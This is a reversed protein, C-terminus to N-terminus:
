TEKLFIGTNLSKLRRKDLFLDFEASSTLYFHVNENLLSATQQMLEINLPNLVAICYDSRIKKFIVIGQNYVFSKPFLSCLKENYPMMSLDLYPLNTKRSLFYYVKELEIGFCDELMHMVMRPKQPDRLFKHDALEYMISSFQAKNLVGVDFLSILLDVQSKLANQMSFVLDALAKTLKVQDLEQSKRRWGSPVPDSVSPRSNLNIKRNSQQGGSVTIQVQRVSEKKVPTVVLDEGADIKRLREQYDEVKVSDGVQEYIDILAEISFKDKPIKALVQEYMEASEKLIKKKADESLILGEINIYTAIRV